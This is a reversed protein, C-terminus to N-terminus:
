AEVAPLSEPELEFLYEPAFDAGNPWFVTWENVQVRAFYAPDRLPEFMEGWLSRWLNVRKQTGDNFTLELSHPGVVKAEIVYILM